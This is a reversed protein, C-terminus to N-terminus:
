PREGNMSGGWPLAAPTRRRNASGGRPCHAPFASRRTALTTTPRRVTRDLPRPACSRGGRVEVRRPRYTSRRQPCGRRRAASATFHRRLGTRAAPIRRRDLQHGVHVLQGHQDLADVRVAGQVYGLQAGHVWAVEPEPRYGYESVLLGRRNRSARPPPAAAATARRVTPASFRNRVATPGIADASTATPCASASTAAM